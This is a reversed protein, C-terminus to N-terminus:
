RPPTITPTSKYTVGTPELVGLVASDEKFARYCRVHKRTLLTALTDADKPAVIDEASVVEGHEVDCVRVHTASAINPAVICTDGDKWLAYVVRHWDNHPMTFFIDPRCEPFGKERAFARIRSELASRIDENAEAGGRTEVWVKVRAAQLVPYTELKVIRGIGYTSMVLATVGDVFAGGISVQLFTNNAESFLEWATRLILFMVAIGFVYEIWPADFLYQGVFGALISCEILMDSRTEKGITVLTAYGSVSGAKIHYASSYWSIAISIALALMIVGYTGSDEKHPVFLPIFPFVSRVSAECSACPYLGLVSQYGIYIALFALLWAVGFQFMVGMNEGAHMVHRKWHVIWMIFLAALEYGVDGINHFGDGTLLTSNASFGVGLKLGVRVLCALIGIGLVLSPDFWAFRKHNM